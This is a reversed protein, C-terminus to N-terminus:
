PNLQFGTFSQHPPFSGACNNLPERLTSVLPMCHSVNKCIRKGKAAGLLNGNEGEEDDGAQENVEEGLVVEDLACM